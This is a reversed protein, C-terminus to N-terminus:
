GKTKAVPTIGTVVYGDPRELVTFNVEDGAKIGKLVDPSAVKYPMTMAGMKLAPIADHAIEFSSRDAAVSKVVGHAQAPATTAAASPAPTAATPPAGQPSTCGAALLTASLLMAAIARQFSM